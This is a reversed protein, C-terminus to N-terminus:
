GKWTPDVLLIDERTIGMEEDLELSDKLAKVLVPTAKGFRQEFREITQEVEALFQHVGARLKEIEVDNRHMRVTWLQWEHPLTPDPCYSAFDIWERECCDMVAVLQWRHEDPVVGAYAWRLHNMMRPCKIELAGTKSILGDPSAGFDKVTEHLVFGVEDVDVDNRFGYTTRALPELEKGREMDANVPHNFAQQTVREIALQLRYDLRASQEGKGSKLMAMVDGCRSGTVRGTRASLWASGGQKMTVIKVNEEPNVSPLLILDSSAM